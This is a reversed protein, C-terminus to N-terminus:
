KIRISDNVVHLSIRIHLFVQALMDVIGDPSLQPFALGAKRELV